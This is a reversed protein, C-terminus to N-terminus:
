QGRRTIRVIRDDGSRTRGRGDRNSTLLYLHNDPGVVADRLRGFTTEGHDPDFWREIATVQFDDEQQVLQIRILARSRLTAVFLDGHWFAMGGPPTAQEWMILPDIYPPRDAKGVTRPWGYNGGKEIVNIIDRGRLGYEGSPGHESSFLAGTGPHWALGQPNRHGLSFVPSGEFPNDAPIAGEPTLRLIKGALSGADQASEAQWIDGTTIYLMGDPGFGIRGGNHVRHGPIKDIIVRDLTAREGEHRLRVVRNAPRGEERYTHMAYIYPVDPFRPHVALGMLGGEGAHLVEPEAYPAPLLRGQVIRRIRGPRESVLAETPSLFVLSWPIELGEIWTEVIYDKLESRQTDAVTQPTGGVKPDAHVAGASLSLVVLCAVVVRRCYDKLQM